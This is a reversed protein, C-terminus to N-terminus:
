CSPMCIRYLSNKKLFQQRSYLIFPNSFTVFPKPILMQNTALVQVERCWDCFLTNCVSNTVVQQQRISQIRSCLATKMQELLSNLFCFSFTIILLWSLHHHNFVIIQQQMFYVLELNTVTEASLLKKGYYNVLELNFSLFNRM